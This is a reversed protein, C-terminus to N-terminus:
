GKKLIQIVTNTVVTALLVIILGVVANNLIKKSMIVRDPEGRSSIQMFGAYSIVFIMVVGVSSLLTSLVNLIITWVFPALKDSNLNGSVPAQINCNADKPLGAHWPRFGLFTKECETPRKTLTAGDQPRANVGDTMALVGGITLFIIMGVNFIM